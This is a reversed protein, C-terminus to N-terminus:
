RGVSPKDTLRFIGYFTSCYIGVLAVLYLFEIFMWRRRQPTLPSQRAMDVAATAPRTLMPLSVVALITKRVATKTQLREAKSRHFRDHISEPLLALPSYPALRSWSEVGDGASVRSLLVQPLLALPLLAVAATQSRAFTSLILGIAAGGLGVVSIVTVFLVPPIAAIENTSRNGPGIHVISLFVLLLLLCQSISVMLGFALKGFAYASPSLGALRDRGYLVRERVIERVTSSMGLWTAALMAFFVLSTSGLGPSRFVVILAGLIAPQVLATTLAPRDRLFGKLSRLFVMRTQPFFSRWSTDSQLFPRIRPRIIPRSRKNQEVNPRAPEAPASETLVGAPSQPMDQLVDFLDAYNRVSFKEPLGDSRGDHALTTVGNRIGLVLLRDFFHLTSMTHTTLIVTVGHRSIHRLVEMLRAATGPDLGSTPEDLLLIRPSALLEVAISVRKREGGSLVRVLRGAKAALGVFAIARQVSKERQDPTSYPTRIIAAFRLNEAVTLEPYVIDDQEVVGIMRRYRHSEEKLSHGGDFEIMGYEPISSGCLCSILLSKGAGSPGLIGVLEGARIETTIGTLIDRNGRRVGIGRLRLSLGGDTKTVTLAEETLRYPPGLGFRVLDGVRIPARRAPSNNVFTGFRSGLDVVLVGGGTARELRAHTKSISMDMLRIDATPGRGITLPLRTMPIDPWLGYSTSEANARQGSM